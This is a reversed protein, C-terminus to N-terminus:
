TGLEFDSESTLLINLKTQQIQVFKRYEEKQWKRKQETRKSNFPSKQDNGKYRSQEWLEWVKWRIKDNGYNLGHFICFRRRELSGLTTKMDDLIRWNVTPDLFKDRASFLIDTTVLRTCGCFLLQKWEFHHHTFNQTSLTTMKHFQEAQLLLLKKRLKLDTVHDLLCTFYVLPCTPWWLTLLHCLKWLHCRLITVITQYRLIPCSFM